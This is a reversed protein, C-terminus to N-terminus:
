FRVTLDAFFRRPPAVYLQADGIESEAVYHRSDGLNRGVVSVRFHRDIDFSLGADWEYFPDMYAENIKDFPRRSQHRVAAWAGLGEKPAWAVRANWLDRPVLELRQGDAVTLGNDPDIFSFRMYRADHHAYGAYFALDPLAAPHWGIEAELGQFRESGANVLEPEGNAGVISVVLNEFIMHFVSADFSLQRDLLRMKVGIEQSRTREPDLIRANEAETLNPAAPKFASKAAGYLHLSNFAGDRDPVIRVLAALGGSWQGDSKSDHTVDPDPAGVEQGSATLTESVRDYRAGATITLPAIPTWEDNVYFGVFTRRDSFSRNDGTPTEAFTPVVVPDIQLEIDFGTGVATTKGWTVAAGGVVRHKGAADFNAVLHLDDYVDTERPKLFVGAATATGEEVGDIFSRISIQADRAVGLVNELRLGSSLPVDLKTTLSYIHHDLRAGGVEYNRDIRFGEIVEGSPPDVPLPSGFFQTTRSAQLIAQFSAANPGTGLPVDLRLGGRDERYDTRDQWGKSRDFDGFLRLTGGGVAITHSGHLRGESFSGGGARIETGAGASRTFASVGYLTGQPGKVIEIRDIDEVDIQALDPNFPGGVPVGDVMVLLADFEKLGWMGINPLRTGNDSGLGTDIGAVDQIADALTRANRSRIEDGTIVTAQGPIETESEPGRAASVVVNERVGAAPTPTPTPTPSPPNAAPDQALARAAALSSALAVAGFFRHAGLRARDHASM